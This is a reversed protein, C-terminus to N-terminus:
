FMSMSMGYFLTWSDWTHSSLDYNWLKVINTNGSSDHGSEHCCWRRCVFYFDINGLSTFFSGNFICIICSHFWSRKSLFRQCINMSKIAMCSKFYVQTMSWIYGIGIGIRQSMLYIILGVPHEIFFTLFYQAIFWSFIYIIKLSVFPEYCGFIHSM